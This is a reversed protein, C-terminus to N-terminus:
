SPKVGKAINYAIGFFVFLFLSFMMMAREGDMHILAMVAWAALFGFLGAFVGRIRFAQAKKHVYGYFVAFGLAGMAAANATSTILVFGASLGWIISAIYDHKTM